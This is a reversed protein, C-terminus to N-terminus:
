SILFSLDRPQQLYMKWRDYLSSGLIYNHRNATSYLKYIFLQCPLALGMPVCLLIKLTSDRILDFGNEQHRKSSCTRWADRFVLRKRILRAEARQVAVLGVQRDRPKGLGSSQTCNVEQHLKTKCFM